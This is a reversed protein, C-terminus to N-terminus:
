DCPTLSNIWNSILQVGEQHVMTRGIRPMRYNSANTNMMYLLTSEGTNAPKVVFGRDIGPIQISAPKCVGMNIPEITKDFAMRIEMYEADGGDQHCHACNIDLYSRVRLDLSKSTDNYDVTANIVAPISNELYGFEILKTLQNKPGTAYNYVGNLNQPKIGIPRHEANWKHCKICKNESPFEYDISQTNNNQDIWTIPSTGGMMQLSAETQENNWIYEAFIWGDSKRIMVRTEMIRRSNSPQVNDYYFTKILAAGVPLDLIQSDSVYNAKTGNPLWIFRSKKAYDTFLESNPRYPLVGYAPLQNKIEGTFFKYDSLNPYPVQTLDMVVPSVAFPVYDDDDSSCAGISLFGFVVMLIVAASILKNKM